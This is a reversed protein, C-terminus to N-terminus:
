QDQKFIQDIDRKTRNIHYKDYLSKLKDMSLKDLDEEDKNRKVFMKFDDREKNEMKKEYRKLADIYKRQERQSM